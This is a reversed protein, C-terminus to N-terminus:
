VRPVLAIQPAAANMHNSVSFQSGMEKGIPSM